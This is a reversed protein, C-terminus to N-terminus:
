NSCFKTKGETSSLISLVFYMAFGKMNIIYLLMFQAPWTRDRYFIWLTWKFRDETYIHLLIVFISSERFIKIKYKVMMYLLRVKLWILNMSFSCMHLIYCHVQSTTIFFLTNRSYFGNQVVLLAGFNLLEDCDDCFGAKPEQWWGSWVTQERRWLM